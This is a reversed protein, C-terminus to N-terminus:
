GGGLTREEGEDWTKKTVNLQMIDTVKRQVIFSFFYAESSQIHSYARPRRLQRQVDNFARGVISQRLPEPQHPRADNHKGPQQWSHRKIGNLRVGVDGHCLTRDDIAADAVGAL